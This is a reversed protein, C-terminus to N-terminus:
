QRYEQPGIAITDGDIVHCKGSIIEQTVASETKVEAVVTETLKTKTEAVYLATRVTKKVQRRFLWRLGFMSFGTIRLYAVLM